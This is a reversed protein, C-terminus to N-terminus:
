GIMEFSGQFILASVLDLLVDRNKLEGQVTCRGIMERLVLNTNGTNQLLWSISFSFWRPPDLPKSLRKKTM